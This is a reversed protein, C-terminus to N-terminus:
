MMMNGIGCLVFVLAFLTAASLVSAAIRRAKTRRIKRQSKLWHRHWSRRHRDDIWAVVEGLRAALEAREIETMGSEERIEPSAILGARMKSISDRMWMSYDTAEM